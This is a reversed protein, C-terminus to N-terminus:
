NGHEYTRKERATALRASIIRIAEEQETHVVVVLRGRDSRGMLIYRFEDGSHSEDAITTSLRDLFATAAEPFSVGHKRLNEDAKAPDWEFEPLMGAVYTERATGGHQFAALGFEDRVARLLAM